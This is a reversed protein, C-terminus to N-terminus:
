DDEKEEERKGDKYIIVERKPKVKNRVNEYKIRLRIYKMYLEDFNRLEKFNVVVMNVYGFILIVIIAIIAIFMGLSMCM